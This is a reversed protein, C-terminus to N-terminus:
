LRAEPYTHYTGEITAQDLIHGEMKALADGGGFDGELGLNEVDLAYVTFRYRHVREDNWPPCPGDYGGYTGAMDADGEFWSTYSNRGRRGHPTPGIPKGRPTVGNSDQAEALVTRAAPLDVLVWHYFDTRERGYEVTKGQTNVNEGHAPVDVDVCLVAFSRTAAPFDEWALHPSMNRGFEVPGNEDHTTPICFAYQPAIPQGHQLSNSRLKM